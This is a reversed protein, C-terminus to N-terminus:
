LKHENIYGEAQDSRGETAYRANIRDELATNYTSTQNKLNTNYAQKNFAFTEKALKQQQFSNWLSGITQIGGLVLQANGTNFSGDPKKFFNSQGVNGLGTTVPQYGSSNTPSGTTFSNQPNNVQQNIANQQIPAMQQNQQNPNNYDFM